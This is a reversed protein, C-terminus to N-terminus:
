ARIVKGWSLVGTSMAYTPGMALKSMKSFPIIEQEKAPPFGFCVCFFRDTAVEDVVFGV